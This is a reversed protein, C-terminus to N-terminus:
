SRLCDSVSVRVTPGVVEVSRFTFTSRDIRKNVPQMNIMFFMNYMVAHAM